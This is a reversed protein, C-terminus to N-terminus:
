PSCEIVKCRIRDEGELEQTRSNPLELLLKSLLNTVGIDLGISQLLFALLIFVKSYSYREPHMVLSQDFLLRTLITCRFVHMM